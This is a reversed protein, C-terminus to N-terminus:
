PQGERFRKVLSDLHIRVVEDLREESMGVFDGVILPMEKQIGESEFVFWFRDPYMPSTQRHSVLEIDPPLNTKIATLTENIM